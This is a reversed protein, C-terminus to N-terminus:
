QDASSAAARVEAWRGGEELHAQLQTAYEDVLREAAELQDEDLESEGDSSGGGLGLADKLGGLVGGASGGDSGVPAGMPGQQELDDLKPIVSPLSSTDAVLRARDDDDPHDIEFEVATMVLGWQQRSFQSNEIRDAFQQDVTMREGVIQDTWQDTM